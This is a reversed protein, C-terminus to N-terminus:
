FIKHSDIKLIDYLTIDEGLVLSPFIDKQTRRDEFLLEEETFFSCQKGDYNSCIRCVSDSKTTVKISIDPKQSIHRYFGPINQVDEDTYTRIRRGNRQIKYTRLTSELVKYQNHYGQKLTLIHHWRLPINNQNMKDFM